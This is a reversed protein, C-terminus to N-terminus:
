LLQQPDVDVVIQSRSREALVNRLARRIPGAEPGRLLLQYRWKGKLREFPAPAPGSMRTDHGSLEDILRQGLERAETEVRERKTGRLLVQTMRTFPPYHFIRRFRMEQEAFARDRHELAARIAYHEPHFTQIVVRGAREGRGARGALQTLLAYTREVARFDPFSLYSDAHLVATLAVGPFHHGKSVMQTGVLVRTEGRAFRELIARTGGVRRVADRDLLDVTVDPFLERFTEEVRETGTGVPELAEADCSPCRSPVALSSGCYHCVLRHPRQHLTRPLGCDDCSHDHGCARCLLLPAYGRRNRLLIIQEDRGLSRDIETLLRQSFVVEGPRRPASESKLDVLIGEPLSGQGVRETLELATFRGRDVNWRAELSPTASVLLATAGANRARVLALDRGHYRPTSEQKYSSDQEEDVVVFALDRVPAFIASRPGLVVRAEGSAVREWEQHREARGLGSHLIALRDGFRDRVTRALAPVLSIEPVLLISGRGGDLAHEVVRLYVETKGSGTMGALLFPAYQGKDVSDVLRRVAVEQDPRLEIPTGTERSLLHRDLPLRDLQTFRRLVDLRVLRRVVGESCDAAGLVEAMTAPRGVDALYRVVRRGPASRGCRELLEDLEGRGLEVAATYRSGRAGPRALAVLSRDELRKVVAGARPMRLKSELDALSGPGHELLWDVIRREDSDRVTALAGRDTLRVRVEGWPPLRAPLMARVVEGPPALYYESTFRALELLDPPLVPQRDVVAEIERTTVGEPPETGVVMVTGLLRRKGVRVRVRIGPEIRAVLSEPVGYTLLEDIPLPVAVDVHYDSM